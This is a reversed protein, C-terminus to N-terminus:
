KQRAAKQAELFDVFDAREQESPFHPLLAEENPPRQGNNGAHYAAIAKTRAPGIKRALEGVHRLAAVRALQVPDLKTREHTVAEGSPTTITLIGDPLLSVGSYSEGDVAVLRKIFKGEGVLEDLSNPSRGNEFKFRDVSAAIQRLNAQIL